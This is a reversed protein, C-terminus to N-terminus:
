GSNLAYEFRGIPNLSVSLHLPVNSSQTFSIFVTNSSAIRKWLSPRPECNTCASALNRLFCNLRMTACSSPLGTSASSGSGSSFPRFIKLFSVVRIGFSTRFRHWLASSFNQWSPSFNDNKWTNM